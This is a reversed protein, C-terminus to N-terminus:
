NKEKKQEISDLCIEVVIGILELENQQNKKQGINQMLQSELLKFEEQSYLKDTNWEDTRINTIIRLYM